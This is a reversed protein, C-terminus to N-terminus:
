ATASAASRGPSSRTRSIMGATDEVIAANSLSEMASRIVASMADNRRPIDFRLAGLRYYLDPLLCFYGNKAIRRAMNRLEERIGPADMYLIVGPFAGPRDPCAAFAPQRGYKTQVWAEQEIM